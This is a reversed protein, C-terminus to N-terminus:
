AAVIVFNFYRLTFLETIINLKMLRNLLGRLRQATKTYFLVIMDHKNPAFVAFM